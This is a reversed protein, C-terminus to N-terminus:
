GLRQSGTFATTRHLIAWHGSAGHAALGSALADRHHGRGEGALNVVRCSM